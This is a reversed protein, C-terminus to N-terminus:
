NRYYRSTLSTQITMESKFQAENLANAKLNITVMPQTTTSASLSFHLNSINILSPSIYDAVTNRSIKFRQTTTASIDPGLYYSVCQNYYNRFSLVDGTSTATVVFITNNDTGPGLNCFNKNKQAMRIEKDTVEFFYKLSEQVNQTALASRQSDVVMKFIETASLIIISFLVVSIIVEILTFGNLFNRSNKNIGIM